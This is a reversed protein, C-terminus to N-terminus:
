RLRQVVHTGSPVLENNHQGVVAPGELAEATDSLRDVVWGESDPLFVVQECGAKLAVEWIAPEDLDFGILVVGDRRPLGVAAARPALDRGLLVIPAGAWSARAAGPDAQVEPEIGAAAACRLLDDLLRPDATIILPRAPRFLTVLVEATRTPHGVTLARDQECCGAVGM